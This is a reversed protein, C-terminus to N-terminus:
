TDNGMRVRKWEDYVRDKERQEKRLEEFTQKADEM